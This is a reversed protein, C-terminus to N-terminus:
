LRGREREKLIRRLIKGAPSKPIADIFEVARVKKHPAVLDAVYALLESETVESRRVVFAKPLEGACEDPLGIVAADVVAPHTLLVAELEAPPVQYGKYKILEKLRDVIFFFGESDFHGIDGTHLWGDRDVTAATAEPNNLYGRMVQPGRVWIEGDQGTGLPAGTEVDVILGETNPALVGVSGPKSRVPRQCSTHSVPSLETLGYGQFICCGLRKACATQLTEDLPAAGSFVIRLASLDHSEVAPHKALLLIAPPALFARTIRYRELLQLFSDIEFKPCTVLTAGHLLGFNLVVNMGYIHFFPLVAIMRDDQDVHQMAALQLLNAVLNRHTLMVGKPLSTTGSSYPLVAIAHSDIPALPASSRTDCLAAFPTAGPAEGFVFLEGFGIASVAAAARDMLSPVTLLARTGADRLQNTLDAATALPSITTVAVGALMAGYFALAFEPLNPAFIGLVDGQRFGRAALAGAVREAGEALQAYSITRGTPGDILAPHDGRERAQALVFAALSVDPISIDPLPSRVIM